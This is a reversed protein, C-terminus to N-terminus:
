KTFLNQTKLKQSTIYCQFQFSSQIHKKIFDGYNEKIIHPLHAGWVNGMRIVPVIQIIQEVIM